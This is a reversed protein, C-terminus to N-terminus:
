RREFCQIPLGKAVLSSRNGLPGSEPGGAPPWLVLRRYHWTTEAALATPRILCFLDRSKRLRIQLVAPSLLLAAALAILPGNRALSKCCALGKKAPEADAICFKGTKLCTSPTVVRRGCKM